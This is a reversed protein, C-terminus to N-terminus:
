FVVCDYVINTTVLLLLKVIKLVSWDSVIKLNPRMGLVHLKISTFHIWYIWIDQKKRTEKMVNM